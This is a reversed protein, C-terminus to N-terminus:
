FGHLAQICMRESLHLGCICTNASAGWPCCILHVMELNLWSLLSVTLLAPGQLAGAEWVALQLSLALTGKMANPLAHSMVQLQETQMRAHTQGTVM